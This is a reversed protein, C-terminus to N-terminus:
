DFFIRIGGVNEFSKEKTGRKIVGRSSSYTDRRICQKDLLKGDKYKLLYAESIYGYHAKTVTTEEGVFMESSEIIEPAPPKIVKLVKSDVKYKVGDELYGYVSVTLVKDNVSTEIYVNSGTGNIFKLDSSTSVMADTSPPVYSASLTHRNVEVVTLGARLAANYLTTSVQCVGGGVGKVYVGDKIINADKYGREKTREGVTGNFSFLEGTDLITGNIANAALRINNSRADGSTKFSTSFEGILRTKNELELRTVNPKIEIFSIELESDDSKLSDAFGNFLKNEDVKRGCSENEYTFKNLERAHFHAKADAPSIYLSGIIGSVDAGLGSYMHDLVTFTDIGSNVYEYYADSLSFTSSLCHNLQPNLDYSKSLLVDNGVKIVVHRSIIVEEPESGIAWANVCFVTLTFVASILILKAFVTFYGKM